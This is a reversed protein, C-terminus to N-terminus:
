RGGGSLGEIITILRRGDECDGRVQLVFNRVVMGALRSVVSAYNESGWAKVRKTNALGITFKMFTESLVAPKYGQLHGIFEIWAEVRGHKRGSKWGVSAVCEIRADSRRLDAKKTRM